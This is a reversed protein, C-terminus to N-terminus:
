GQKHKDIARMNSMSQHYCLWLSLHHEWTCVILFYILNSIRINIELVSLVFFSQVSWKGCTKQQVKDIDILNLLKLHYENTKIQMDANHTFVFNVYSKAALYRYM